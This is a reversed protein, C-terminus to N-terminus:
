IAPLVQALRETGMHGEYHRILTTVVESLHEHWWNPPYSPGPAALQEDTLRAAQAIAREHMTRWFALAEEYSLAEYERRVAENIEDLGVIALEQDSLERGYLETMTPLRGEAQGLFVAGVIRTYSALHCLVDRGAWGGFTGSPSVRNEVLRGARELGAMVDYQTM